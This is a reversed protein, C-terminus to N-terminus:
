FQGAFRHAPMQLASPLQCTGVLQCACAWLTANKEEKNMSKLQNHMCCGEHQRGHSEYLGADEEKRLSAM